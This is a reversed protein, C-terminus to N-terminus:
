GGAAQVNAVFQKWFVQWKEVVKVCALHNANNENISYELDSMTYPTEAPVPSNAPGDHGSGTSTTGQNTPEPGAQATSRLLEVVRASLVSNDALVAIKADNDKKNQAIQNLAEIGQQKIQLTLAANSSSLAAHNALNATKYEDFQTQIKQKQSTEYSVEAKLTGIYIFLAVIALGIAAMKWNTLLWTLM